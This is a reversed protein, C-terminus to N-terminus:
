IISENKGSLASVMRQIEVISKSKSAKEMIADQESDSMNLFNYFARKDHSFAMALGIPMKASNDGYM